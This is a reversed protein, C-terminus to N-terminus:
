GNAFTLTDIGATTEDFSVGFWDFAFDILPVPADLGAWGSGGAPIVSDDFTFYGGGLVGPAYFDGTGNTGSTVSFDVTIPLAHAPSAAGFALLVLTAASTTKNNTISRLKM